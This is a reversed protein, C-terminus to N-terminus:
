PERWAPVHDADVYLSRELEGSGAAMVEGHERFQQGRGLRAQNLSRTM